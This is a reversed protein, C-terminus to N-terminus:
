IDIDLKLYGKHVGATNKFPKSFVSNKSKSFFVYMINITNHHKFSHEKHKKLIEWVNPAERLTQSFLQSMRM